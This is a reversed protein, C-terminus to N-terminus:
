FGQAVKAKSVIEAVRQRIKDAEENERRGEYYPIQAELKAVKKKDKKTLEFKDETM